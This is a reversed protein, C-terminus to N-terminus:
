SVAAITLVSWVFITFHGGQALIRCRGYRGMGLRTNKVYRIRSLLAYPKNIVGTSHEAVEVISRKRAVVRVRELQRGSDATEREQM